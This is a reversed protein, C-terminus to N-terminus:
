QGELSRNPVLSFFLSFSNCVKGEVGGRAAKQIDASVIL